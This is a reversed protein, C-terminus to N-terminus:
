VWGLQRLLLGLALSVGNAVLTTTLALRLQSSGLFLWYIWGELGFAWVESIVLGTGAPNASAPHAYFGTAAVALSLGFVARKRLSM